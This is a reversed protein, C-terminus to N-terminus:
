HASPHLAERMAQWRKYQTRKSPAPDEYGQLWFRFWDLNREYVALKHRPQFKNHPENPFVYLDARHSLMLPIAYGLSFMYEQEPFQMLIPAHIKDLNLTPAIQRWQRPTQGPSGLQWNSRLLSLFPKGINRGLLYYLKSTTPSAMSAAAIAHSHILAWMTVESGFSLGGMGVRNTDIQGESALQRVASEVAAQGLEYRQRANPSFSPANICLTSVGQEAMSALPWEDGPGGRAFGMCRYYTVFLPPPRKGARHAPYFQGTLTRGKADTWRLVRAHIDALDGALVRNPDFMVTRQGTRLDIRELRPPRAATATVCALATRSVGCQGPVWRREGALLGKSFAVRHVGGTQVNWRYISQGFGNDYPTVTFIVEDSNPRWKIDSLAKGTCAAATCPVVNKARLSPLMLLGIRPHDTAAKTRTLVAIRGSAPDQALKWAHPVRKVIDAVTLSPKAHAAHALDRVKGSALDVAEWRDPIHATLAVRNFMLGLRQTALRGGTFGSRFLPQGLPTSRDVRIGQDYEAQEADAVADRTPGVSYTLVKGDDALAFARVNADGTSMRQAGQGDTAARWVDVRGNLRARYYIWRGDPSWAVRAPLAIGASDRLPVGGAGVRRPPTAADMPQVYWTSTYTNRAISARTIRFAVRMGDPSVMPHSFDAMDVLQRPSVAWTPQTVTLGTVLAFAFLVRRAVAHLRMFRM